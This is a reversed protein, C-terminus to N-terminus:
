GALYELLIAYHCLYLSLPSGPMYAHRYNAYRYLISNIKRVLVGFSLQM